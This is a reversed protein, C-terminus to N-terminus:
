RYNYYDEISDEVSDNIESHQRSSSLNPPVHIVFVQLFIDIVM